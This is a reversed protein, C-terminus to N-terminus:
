LFINKLCWDALNPVHVFIQTWTGLHPLRGRTSLTARRLTATLFLRYNALNQIEIRLLFPASINVM